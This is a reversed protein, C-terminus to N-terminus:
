PHALLYAFSVAPGGFLLIYAVVDSKKVSVSSRNGNGM